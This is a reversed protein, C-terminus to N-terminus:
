TSTTSAPSKRAFRSSTRRRSQQASCVAMWSASRWCMCSCGLCWCPSRHRCSSHGCQACCAAAFPRRSAWYALMITPLGVTVATLLTINRPGFPFGVGVFGTAIIILAVYFCRTLFLNLIDRMGNVIRQGETFAPALAAFSDNLLVMDAVGRTASSGSQMAIGLQAKKLSLVDNVGDGIMAVYHGRSRLAEVLKEKQDPTIRGFITGEEAAQVFVPEPMSAMDVGSYLKMDAPFGAQRALAAVTNPDDGSIVKIRIGADRFKQITQRADARLVDAFVLLGLPQLDCPLAVEGHADHLTTKDPQHALLVVRLGQETLPQVTADLSRDDCLHDRLMDIAGM